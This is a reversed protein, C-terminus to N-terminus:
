TQLFFFFMYQFLGIEMQIVDAMCIERLLFDSKTNSPLLIKLNLNKSYLFVSFNFNNLMMNWHQKGGHSFFFCELCKLMNYFSTPSLWEATKSHQVIGQTNKESSTVLLMHYIPIHSLLSLLGSGKQCQVNISSILLIWGACCCIEWVLWSQKFHLAATKVKHGYLLSKWNSSFSFGWLDQVVDHRVQTLAM